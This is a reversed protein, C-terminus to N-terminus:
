ESSSGDKQKRWSHGFGEVRDERYSHETAAMLAEEAHELSEEQIEM